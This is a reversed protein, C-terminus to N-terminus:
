ELAADLMALVQRDGYGQVVSASNPCIAACSGCGQCALQDIEIIDEDENRRRADYPCASICRECLACLSHRVEAVVSGAPIKERNLMGLQRAAAQAMAISESISRPSHAVGCIFVGRKRSNVPQWKYDAEKFFGDENVQSKGLQGALMRQDNPIIGTSLVLCDPRLM